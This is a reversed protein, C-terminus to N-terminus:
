CSSSFYWVSFSYGHIIYIVKGQCTLWFNPMWLSFCSGLFFLFFGYFCLCLFICFSLKCGMSSYGVWLWCCFCWFWVFWGAIIPGWSTGLIDGELMGLVDGLFGTEGDWPLGSRVEQPRGLRVDQPRGSIVELHRGLRVSMPHGQSTSEPRGWSTKLVDWLPGKSYEFM